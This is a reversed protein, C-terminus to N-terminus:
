MVGMFRGLLLQRQLDRYEQGNIDTHLKDQSTKEVSDAHLIVMREAIKRTSKDVLPGLHKLLPKNLFIPNPIWRYLQQYAQLLRSASERSMAIRAEKLWWRLVDMIVLSEHPLSTTRQAAAVEFVTQDDSGAQEATKLLSSAVPDDPRWNLIKASKQMLEYHAYRRNGQLRAFLIAYIDLYLLSAPDSTFGPFLTRYIELACAHPQAPNSLLAYLPVTKRLIQNIQKYHMEEDLPPSIGNPRPAAILEAMISLSYALLGAKFLLDSGEILAPWYSYSESDEAQLTQGKKLSKIAAAMLEIKDGYITPYDRNSPLPEVLGYNDQRNEQAVQTQRTILLNRLAQNGTRGTLYACLSDDMVSILDKFYPHLDERYINILFVIDQPQPHRSLIDDKIFKLFAAIFNSPSEQMCNLIPLRHMSLYVILFFDAKRGGYYLSRKIFNFEKRSQPSCAEPEVTASRGAQRLRLEDQWFRFVDEQAHADNFEDIIIRM